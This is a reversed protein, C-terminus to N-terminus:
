RLSQLGQGFVYAGQGHCDGSGGNAGAPIDGAGRAEGYSEGKAAYAVPPPGTAWDARDQRGDEAAHDAVRQWFGGGVAAVRGDASISAFGYTVAPEVEIPVPPDGALRLLTASSKKGPAFLLDDLGWFALCAWSASNRMSWREGGLSWVRAARGEVLMEGSLPHVTVRQADGQGGLLSQVPIGTQADWLRIDQRGDKLISISILRMGDSTFALNTIKSVNSRAQFVVQGNKLDTGKIMGLEDGTAILAGDPRMACANSLHPTPCSMLSGDTANILEPPTGRTLALIQQGNPTFVAELVVQGVAHTWIKAGTEM